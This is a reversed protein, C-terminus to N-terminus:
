PDSTPVSPPMGKFRARIAPDKIREIWAQAAAPDDDMVAVALAIAEDPPFPDNALARTAAVLNTEALKRIIETKIRSSNAADGLSAAGAYLAEDPRLVQLLAQVDAEHLDPESSARGHSAQFSVLDVLLRETPSKCSATLSSTQADPSTLAARLLALRAQPKILLNLSPVAMGARAAIERPYLTAALRLSDPGAEAMASLCNQFAIPPLYRLRRLAFPLPLPSAEWEASFAKTYGGLLKQLAPHRLNPPLPLTTRLIELKGEELAQLLYNTVGGPDESLATYLITSAVEATMDRRMLIGGLVAWAALAPDGGKHIDFTECIQELTAGTQWPQANSAPKAELCTAATKGRIKDFTSVASRDAPIHQRLFFGGAFSLVLIITSHLLPQFM